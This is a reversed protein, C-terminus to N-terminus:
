KGEETPTNKAAVKVPKQAPEAPKSVPETAKKVPLADVTVFEPDNIYGKVEKTENPKFTVGHYIKTFASLNKYIM